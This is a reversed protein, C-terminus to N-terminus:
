RSSNNALNHSKVLLQLIGGDIAKTAGCEVDKGGCKICLGRILKEQCGSVVAKQLLNLAIHEGMQMLGTHVKLRNRPGLIHGRTSEVSDERGFAGRGNSPQPLLAQAGAM